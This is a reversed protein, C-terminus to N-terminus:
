QSVFAASWLNSLKVYQPADTEVLGREVALKILNDASTLQYFQNKIESNTTKLQQSQEEANDLSHRFNVIQNYAFINWCAGALLLLILGILLHSSISKNKKPAIITM